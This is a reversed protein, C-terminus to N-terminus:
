SNEPRSSLFHIISFYQRSELFCGGGEISGTGFRGVSISLIDLAADIFHHLRGLGIYLQMYLFLSSGQPIAESVM